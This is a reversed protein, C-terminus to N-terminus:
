IEGHEIGGIRDVEIVRKLDAIHTKTFYITVDAQALVVELEQGQMDTFRTKLVDRSGNAFSFMAGHLPCLSLYNQYHRGKLDELFEVKEFYYSGDDLKFPLRLKCVQCLMEGDAKTYQERLYEKAEQKVEERGVSVARTRQESYRGPAVAAQKGVQDARREPNQPEHEPLESHQRSQFEALIREQEVQPLAAFQKARELSELIPSAWRGPKPKESRRESQESKTRRALSYGRSGTMGPM